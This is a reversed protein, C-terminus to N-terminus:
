RDHTCFSICNPGGVEVGNDFNILIENGEAPHIGM